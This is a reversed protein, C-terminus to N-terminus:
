RNLNTKNHDDADHLRSFHHGLIDVVGDLKSLIAEGARPKDPEKRRQYACPGDRIHECVHKIKAALIDKNLEAKKGSRNVKTFIAEGIGRLVPIGFRNRQNRILMYRHEHFFKFLAVASRLAREVVYKGEGSTGSKCGLSNELLVHVVVAEIQEDISPKGNSDTAYTKM